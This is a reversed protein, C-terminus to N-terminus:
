RDSDYKLLFIDNKDPSNSTNGDVGVTTAGTVYISSSDVAIGWAQDQQSTGLLQTWLKTGSSDFKSLFIDYSGAYTKGDLSGQVGGTVYINGERDTDVDRGTDNENTGFLKTWLKTSGNDNVSVPRNFSVNISINDGLGYTGDTNQSSVNTVVARTDVILAKNSALSGFEDPEPLNLYADNGATDKISGSNFSFPNEAYYDM